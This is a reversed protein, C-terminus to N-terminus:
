PRLVAALARRGQWALVLALVLGLVAAGALFPLTERWPWLLDLYATMLGLWLFALGWVLVAGARTAIGLRAIWFAAACFVLRYIVALVPWTLLATMAILQLSLLAVFLGLGLGTFWPMTLFLDDGKPRGSRRVLLIGGLIVVAGLLMGFWQGDAPYARAARELVYADSAIYIAALGFIVAYTKGTGAFLRTGRRRGIRSLLEYLGAAGVLYISMLACIDPYAVRWAAHAALMLLPAFILHATFQAGSFGERGRM